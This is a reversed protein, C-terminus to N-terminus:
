AVSPMGASTICGTLAQSTLAGLSSFFDLDYFVFAGVRFVTSTPSFLELLRFLEATLRLTLFNQERQRDLANTQNRFSHRTRQLPELFGGVARYRRAGRRAAALPAMRCARSLAAPGGQRELSLRMGAVRGMRT